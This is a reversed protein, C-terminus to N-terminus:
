FWSCLPPLSLLHLAGAILEEQETLIVEAGLIHACMGPMGIGCGLELVLKGDLVKPCSISLLALSCRCFFNKFCM